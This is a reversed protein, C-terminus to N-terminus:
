RVEQLNSYYYVRELYHDTECDVPKTSVRIGEGITLRITPNEM